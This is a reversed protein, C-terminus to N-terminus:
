ASHTTQPIKGTDYNEERERLMAVIKLQTLYAGDAGNEHVLMDESGAKEICTKLEARVAKAISDNRESM